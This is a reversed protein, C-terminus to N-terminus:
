DTKCLCVVTKTLRRDLKPTNFEYRFLPWMRFFYLGRAAFLLLFHRIDWLVTIEYSKQHHPSCFWMLRTAHKLGRTESRHDMPTIHLFNHLKFGLSGSSSSSLSASSSPGSTSPRKASAPWSSECWKRSETTRHFKKKQLVFINHFDIKLKMMFLKLCMTLGRYLSQGQSLLLTATTSLHDNSQQCLCNYDEVGTIEKNQQIEEESERDSESERYKRRETM